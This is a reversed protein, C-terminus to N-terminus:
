SLLRGRSQFWQQLLVAVVPSALIAIIMHPVYNSRRRTM